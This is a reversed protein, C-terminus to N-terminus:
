RKRLRIKRATDSSAVSMERLILGIVAAVRPKTAKLRNKVRENLKRPVPLPYTNLRGLANVALLENM